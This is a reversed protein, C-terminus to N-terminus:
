IESKEKDKNGAAAADYEEGAPEPMSRSFINEAAADREAETNKEHKVDEGRDNWGFGRLTALLSTREDELQTVRKTLEKTKKRNKIYVEMSACLSIIWMILVGLAFVIIEWIGQRLTMRLDLFKITIEDTNSLAYVASLIMAVAIGVIYSKM